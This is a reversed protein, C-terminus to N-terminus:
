FLLYRIVRLLNNRVPHESNGDESFGQISAPNDFINDLKDASPPTCDSQNSMSAGSTPPSASTTNSNSSGGIVEDDEAEGDPRSLLKMLLVAPKSRKTTSSDPRDSNESMFIKGIDFLQDGESDHGTSACDQAATTCSEPPSIESSSHQSKIPPSILMDDDDNNLLLDKLGVDAVSPVSTTLALHDAPLGTGAQRSNSGCRLRRIHEILPVPRAGDGSLVSQPLYRSSPNASVPSPLVPSPTTFRSSAPSIAQTVSYCM